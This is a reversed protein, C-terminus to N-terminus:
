KLVKEYLYDLHSYFSKPDFIAEIESASLKDTVPKEKKLIGLLPEKLGAAETVDVFQIAQAQLLTALLWLAFALTTARFPLARM